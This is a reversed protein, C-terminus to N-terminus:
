WKFPAPPGNEVDESCHLHLIEAARTEGDPRPRKSQGGVVDVASQGVSREHDAPQVASGEELRPLWYRNHDFRTM